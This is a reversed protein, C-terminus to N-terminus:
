GLGIEQGVSGMAQATAGSQQTISALSAALVATQVAFMAELPSGVGGSVGDLETEDLERTEVQSINTNMM